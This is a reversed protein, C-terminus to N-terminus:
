GLGLGHHSIAAVPPWISAISSALSYIKAPRAAAEHDSVGDRTTSKSRNATALPLSAATIQRFRWRAFEAAMPRSITSSKRTASTGFAFKAMAGLAAM